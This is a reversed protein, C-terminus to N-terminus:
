WTKGDTWRRIEGQREDFVFGHGAAVTARAESTLRKLLVNCGGERAVKFIRKAEDETRVYGYFSIPPIM